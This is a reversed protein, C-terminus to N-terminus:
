GPGPAEPSAGADRRRFRARLALLYLRWAPQRSARLHREAMAQRWLAASLAARVSLTEAFVSAREGEREASLAQRRTNFERAIRSRMEKLRAIQAKRREAEYAERASIGSLQSRYQQDLEQQVATPLVQPATGEARRYVADRWSCVADTLVDGFGAVAGVRGASVDLATKIGAQVLAAKRGPGIGHVNMQVVKAAFLHGDIHNRRVRKLETAERRQRRSELRSRELGHKWDSLRELGTLASERRATRALARNEGRGLARLGRDQRASIASRTASLQRLRKRLMKTEARSARVGARPPPTDHDGTAPDVRRRVYARLALAPLLALAIAGGGITPLLAAIAALSLLWLLLVSRGMRQRTRVSRLGACDPGTGPTQTDPACVRADSSPAEVPSAGDAPPSDTTRRDTCHRGPPPYQWHPLAWEHVFPITADPGSLVITSLATGIAEIEPDASGRLAKLAGSSAADAFDARRFLLCDDGCEFEHWLQPRHATAYLSAFVVWGAFYDLGPHFDSVSRWPPQFSDHGREIVAMGALGPVFMGDYDVLRLKGDAVLVNADSLDGHAIGARQLSSTLTLWERALALLREPEDLTAAIYAGLSAGSVWEMKLIPYWSGWLRIGEPQYEFEVTHPLGATSLRDGIARYRQEVGDRRVTLCRVAWSADGSDIRFVTAFQGSRPRPLGIRDVEVVGSRLEEDSLCQAHEQLAEMYDQPTPWRTLM